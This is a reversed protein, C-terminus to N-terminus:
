REHRKRVIIRFAYEIIGVIGILVYSIFGNYITWLEIDGHLVTFLSFAGNLLFFACWVKTVNITYKIAYPPLEKHTLLALRTVISKESFLSSFFVIELLINVFVPYYLVLNNSKFIWSVICLIVACIISIISFFGFQSKQKYTLLLRIAFIFAIAPLLFDLFNYKIGASIIFPYIFGVIVCLIILLKKFM